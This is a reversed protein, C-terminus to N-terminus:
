ESGLTAAERPEAKKAVAKGKARVAIAELFGGTQDFDSVLVANVQRLGVQPQVRPGRLGMGEDGVRVGVVEGTM